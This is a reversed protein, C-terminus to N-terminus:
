FHFYFKSLIFLSSLIFLFWIVCPTQKALMLLSSFNSFLFIWTLSRSLRSFAAVMSLALGLYIFISQPNGLQVCFADGAWANIFVLM